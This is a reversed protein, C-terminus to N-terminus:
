SRGERLKHVSARGAVVDALSGAKYILIDSLKVPENLATSVGLAKRANHTITSIWQELPPDLHAALIGLNLAAMPDHSGVPCFADSVNDSGIVINVGAQHLERLRTLGRQTPSGGDRSQLYLNTTPLACVSIGARALKDAIAMTEDRPKSILSVCHGCLIPAEFGVELAIDAILELGNTPELGEDVHFDLMLGFHTAAAFTARLGRSMLDPDHNLLFVGLVGNRASAVHRAIGYAVGAEAMQGISTLAAWQLELGDAPAFAQAVRWSLPPEVDDGWDIHSRAISCGADRLETIGRTMRASLDSETWNDKDARQAEIAKLLNGGVEGLRPLTHCKDLHCHAEVLKPLVVFSAEPGLSPDFGVIEDGQIRLDLLQAAGNEPQGAGDFPWDEQNPILVRELVDIM